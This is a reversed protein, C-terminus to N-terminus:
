AGTAVAAVTASWSVILEENNRHFRYIAKAKSEKRAVVVM